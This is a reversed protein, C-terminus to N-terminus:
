VEAAAGPLNLTIPTSRKTAILGGPGPCILPRFVITATVLGGFTYTAPIPPTIPLFSRNAIRQVTTTSSPTTPQMSATTVRSTAFWVLRLSQFYYTRNSTNNTTYWRCFNIHGDTLDGGTTGHSSSLPIYITNWGASYPLNKHEWSWEKEDNKGSSSIELQGSMSSGSSINNVYIDLVLYLQDKPIITSFHVDHPEKFTRSVGIVPESTPPIHLLDCKRVPSGWEVDEQYTHDVNVSIRPDDVDDDGSQQIVDCAMLKAIEYAYKSPQETTISAAEAVQLPPLYPFFACYFIVCILLFSIKKTM